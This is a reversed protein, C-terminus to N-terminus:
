ASYAAWSRSRAWGHLGGSWAWGARAWTPRAGREQRPSPLLLQSQRPDAEGQELDWRQAAPAAATGNVNNVCEPGRTRRAADAAAAALLCRGHGVVPLHTEERARRVVSVASRCRAPLAAPPASAACGRGRGAPAAGRAWWPPSPRPPPPLCGASAASGATRTQTGRARRPRSPARGRPRRSTGRGPASCGGATPCPTLSGTQSGVRAM